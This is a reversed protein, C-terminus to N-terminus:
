KSTPASADKQAEKALQAVQVNVRQTLEPIKKLMIDQGAKMGEAMMAPQEKLLHKGAPSSYFTVVADMDSKTLHRQYIPIMADLIEDVPLDEFVTEAFVDVKALQAPTASPLQRKLGAEAGSKMATKMGDMVQVMRARVQLLDLLHLVDDRSPVDTASQATGIGSLLALLCVIILAPRKMNVEGGLPWPWKM